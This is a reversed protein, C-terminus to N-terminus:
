NFEKGPPPQNPGLRGATIEARFYNEGRVPHGALRRLMAIQGIHTLADAVPGQFVREVEFGVPEDAALRADFAALGAHFREVNAQWAQPQTDAWRHEGDILSLAWDFLDCTHALIEGASRSTPGPRFESFGSPADRLVKGGRYAVTALTHRLLAISM